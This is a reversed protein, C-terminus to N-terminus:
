RFVQLRNADLRLFIFILITFSWLSSGGYSFFPLPIGIVPAMGITMGINVAVHFFLISAVGYGYIRSFSSRQREALKIIRLIFVALLVIAFTSGVFGWEEGVTCFIFDTSQEPVFNLKTQTGQLFGKGLLGGSGIAIKSQTVNYGTGKPDVKIGLLENIRDQQHPQLHDFAYNVSPAAGVCLWSILLLTIMNKMKRKYIPYIATISTIVYVILLMYYDSISLNFMWKILVFLGFGCGIFLIIQFLERIDHRYYYFAILTGGIIVLLVTFPTYLLAMIFIAAAVFCLLLISGHLGERFLVLIFSSYVLASGTDNQLIILGAPLALILGITLLSSFRMVKFNHRSMVYAIALNTAFKAFEAPQIRFDGVEFWSRAGKTETGLFLVAILLFIMIGYIVMSFTTFFKSDTLLVLFALVFAAGIWILQKGYKQSIDLISSHNEDYVAAYINIWGILVLLLYLLISVWDINALLNNSRSNM